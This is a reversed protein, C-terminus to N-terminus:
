RRGYLNNEIDEIVQINNQVMNERIKLANQIETETTMTYNEVPLFFISGNGFQYNNETGSAQIDGRFFTIWGIWYKNIKEVEKRLRSPLIVAYEAQTLEVCVQLLKMCFDLQNFDPYNITPFDINIHGTWNDSGDLIKVSVKGEKEKKTNSYSNLFGIPSYSNWELNKNTKDENIYALENDEIQSLVVSDFDDFSPNFCYWDTPKKGWGCLNKFIPHLNCLESLVKKSYDIYEKATLRRPKYRVMLIM